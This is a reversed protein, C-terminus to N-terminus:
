RRTIAVTHLGDKVGVYLMGSDSLAVGGITPAAFGYREIPSYSGDREM